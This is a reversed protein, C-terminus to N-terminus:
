FKKEIKLGIKSKLFTANILTYTGLYKNTGYKDALQCWTKSVLKDLYYTSLIM